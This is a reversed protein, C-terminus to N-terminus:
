QVCRFGTHILSTDPSTKMRASPRYGMCYNDSCLFSGGRTVRKPITPEAPDLGSSPGKPNPVAGTEDAQDKRRYTDARYWDATWEWVNGAMDYLGYDNPEFSRVPGTATFGDRAADEIPFEGDWLNAMPKGAPEREEGWLFPRGEVGGRAAFEWEAETPLRKGAWAAYANADDWSVQTVPHDDKATPGDPGAPRRWNAGPMWDWWPGQEGPRLQRFVLSGPVLLEPPPPPTGEPMQAMIDELVPAREATTVYGTADVFTRFQAVTVETADMWFGDVRVPHVPSEDVYAFSGDDGMAFTGGPIWVMGPPAEGPPPEQGAVSPSSGDVGATGSLSAEENEGGSGCAATLFLGLALAPVVLNQPSLM